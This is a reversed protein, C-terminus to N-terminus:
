RMRHGSGRRKADANIVQRQLGCERCPGSRRSFGPTLGLTATVPQVQQTRTELRRAICEDCYGHPMHKRLFAIVDVPITM